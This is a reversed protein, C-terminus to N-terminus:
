HKQPLTQVMCIETSWIKWYIRPVNTVENTFDTNSPLTLIPSRLFLEMRLHEKYVSNHLTRPIHALFDTPHGIPQPPNPTIRFEEDYPSIAFWKVIPFHENLFFTM